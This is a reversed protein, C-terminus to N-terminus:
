RSGVNRALCSKGIRDGNRPFLTRCPLLLLLLIVNGKEKKRDRKKEKGKRIWQRRRPFHKARWGGRALFAFFRSLSLLTKSANRQFPKFESLVPMWYTERKQVSEEEGEVM